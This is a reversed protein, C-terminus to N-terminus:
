FCGRKKLTDALLQHFRKKDTDNKLHHNMLYDLRMRITDAMHNSMETLSRKENNLVQLTIRLRVSDTNAPAHMLTDEAFRIKDAVAFRSERLQVAKCELDAFQSVWDEMDQKAGCSLLFFIFGSIFFKTGKM